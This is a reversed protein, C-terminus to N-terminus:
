EYKYFLNGGCYPCKNEAIDKIKKFRYKKDVPVQNKMLEAPYINEHEEINQIENIVINEKQCIITRKGM